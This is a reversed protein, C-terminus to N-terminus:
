SCDLMLLLHTNLFDKEGDKVSRILFCADQTAGNFIEVGSKLFVYSSVKSSSM